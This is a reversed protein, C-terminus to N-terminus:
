SNEIKEFAIVRDRGQKKAQYLAKDAREIVADLPDDTGKNLSVGFSATFTVTNDGHPIKIKSVAVRLREALHIAGDLGTGHTDQPTEPMMIVFEEGGFRAAIDSGRITTTITNSLAKLAEDGTKHGYTDNVKKFFDIDLSMIFYLHDYRTSFEHIKNSLEKFGRRNYLGTLPDRRAAEEAMKKAEHLEKTREAVNQELNENSRQLDMGIIKQRTWSVALWWSGIIFLALLVISIVFLKNSSDENISRYTVAPVFRIVKWFYDNTEIESRSPSFAEFSGLSTKTGEALPYVTAFTWLGEKNEFQGFNEAQVKDWAQKHRISMNDNPRKLMFGWEQEPTSGKLWFGENNILWSTGIQGKDLLNLTNLVHKGKYNLLLIGQKVDEDSIIPVGIRITPNLPFEVQGREVNLDLPSIFFEGRNLKLADTFYYRGFKNQLKEDPVSYARGGDFNVRIRENGKLDLYRIQDYTPKTKLFTIWDNALHSFSNFSKGDESLIDRVHESLYAIDATTSRVLGRIAGADLDIAAKQSANIKHLATNEEYQYMYFAGFIIAVAIPTFLVSFRGIVSWIHNQIKM